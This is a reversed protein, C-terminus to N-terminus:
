LENLMDEILERETLDFRGWNSRFVTQIDAELYEHLRRFKQIQDEWTFSTEDQSETNTSVEVTEYKCSELANVTIEWDALWDDGTPLIDSLVQKRFGFAGPQADFSSDIDVGLYESACITEFREFPLRDIRKGQRDLWIVRSKRQPIIIEASSEELRSQIQQIAALPYQGDGDTVLCKNGFEAALLMSMRRAGGFGLKNETILTSDAYEPAAHSPPDSIVLIFHGDTSLSLGTAWEENPEKHSIIAVSHGASM